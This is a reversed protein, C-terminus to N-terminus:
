KAEQTALIARALGVLHMANMWHTDPHMVHSRIYSESVLLLHDDSPLTSVAKPETSIENIADIVGDITIEVASSSNDGFTYAAEQMERLRECLADLIAASVTSNPLVPQAPEKAFTIARLKALVEPADKKKSIAYCAAGLIAREVLVLDNDAAPDIIVLQAARKAECWSAFGILEDRNMSSSQEGYGLFDTYFWAKFDKREQEIGNM